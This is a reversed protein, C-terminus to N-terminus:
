KLHVEGADLWPGCHGHLPTSFWDEDSAPRLVVDLKGVTHVHCGQAVWLLVCLTHLVRLPQHDNAHASVEAADWQRVCSVETAPEAWAVTGVIVNGPPDALARRREVELDRGVTEQLLVFQEYALIQFVM